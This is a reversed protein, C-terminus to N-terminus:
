CLLAYRSFLQKLHLGHGVSTESTIARVEACRRKERLIREESGM